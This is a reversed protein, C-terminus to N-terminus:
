GSARGSLAGLLNMLATLVMAGATVFWLVHDLGSFRSATVAALSAIVIQTLGLSAREAPSM